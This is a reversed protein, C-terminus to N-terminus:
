MAACASIQLMFGAARYLSVTKVHMGFFYPEPIVRSETCKMDAFYTEVLIDQM